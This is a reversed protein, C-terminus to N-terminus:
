DVVVIPLDLLKALDRAFQPIITHWIKKKIYIPNGYIDFQGSQVRTEELTYELGTEHVVVADYVASAFNAEVYHYQNDAWFQAIESETTTEVFDRTKVLEGSDDLKTFADCKHYRVGFFESSRLGVVAHGATPVTKNSRAVVSCLENLTSTEYDVLSEIDDSAGFAGLWRVITLPQLVAAKFFSNEFVEQLDEPKLNLDNM